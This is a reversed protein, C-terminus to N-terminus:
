SFNARTRRCSEAPWASARSAAGHVRKPGSRPPKRLLGIRVCRVCRVCNGGVRLERRDARRDSFDNARLPSVADPADPDDPKPGFLALIARNSLFQSNRHHPFQTLITLTTLSAGIQCAPSLFRSNRHHPFQTLRTLTTLNEGNQYAKLERDRSPLAFGAWSFAQERVPFAGRSLQVGKGCRSVGRTEVSRGKRM